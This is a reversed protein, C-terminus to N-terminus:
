NKSNDNDNMNKSFASSEFLEKIYKMNQPNEETKSKSSNISNIRLRSIPTSLDNCADVMANKHTEKEKIYEL